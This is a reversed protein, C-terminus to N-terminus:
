GVEGSWDNRFLADVKMLTDWTDEWKGVDLSRLTTRAFGLTQLAIHLAKLKKLIEKEPETTSDSEILLQLVYINTIDNDSTISPWNQDRFNWEHASTLVYTLSSSWIREEDFIYM